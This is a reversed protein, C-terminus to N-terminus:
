IGLLMRLIRNRHQMKRQKKQRQQRLYDHKIAELELERQFEELEELPSKELPILVEVGDVKVTRTNVLM